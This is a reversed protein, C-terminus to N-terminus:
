KQKEKEEWLKVALGFVALFKDSNDHIQWTGSEYNNEEFCGWTASAEWSLSETEQITVRLAEYKKRALVGCLDLMGELTPVAYINTMDARSGIETEVTLRYMVAEGGFPNVTIYKSAGEQKYGMEKCKQAIALTM